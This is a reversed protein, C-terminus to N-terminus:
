AAGGGQEALDDLAGAWWAALPFREDAEALAAGFTQAKLPLRRMALGDCMDPLYVVFEPGPKLHQRGVELADVRKAYDERRAWLERQGFGPPQSIGQDVFRMESLKADPVYVSLAELLQVFRPDRTIVVHYRKNNAAARGHTTEINCRECFRVLQTLADRFMEAASDDSM